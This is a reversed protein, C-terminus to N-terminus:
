RHLRRVPNRANGCSRQRVASDRVTAERSRQKGTRWLHNLRCRWFFSLYRPLTRMRSLASSHAVYIPKGPQHCLHNGRGRRTRDAALKSRRDGAQATVQFGAVCGAQTDLGSFLGALIGSSGSSLKVGSAELLLTGGLEIPDIWGLMTQGDIGNGGAMALGGAGLTLYGAGGSSNWVSLDIRSQNFLEDIIRPPPRPLFTLGPASTSNLRSAM